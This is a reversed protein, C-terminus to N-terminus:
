LVGRFQRHNNHHLPGQVIPLGGVAGAADDDAIDINSLRSSITSITM